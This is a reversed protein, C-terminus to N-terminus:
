IMNPFAVLAQKTARSGVKSVCWTRLATICKEDVKESSPSFFHSATRPGLNNLPFNRM